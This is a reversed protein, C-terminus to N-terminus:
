DLTATPILIIKDDNTMATGRGDKNSTGLYMTDNNLHLARLRGYEGNFYSSLSLSSDNGIVAKYLSQGRLGTFYLANNHYVMDAPAWTDNDGSSLVPSRMGDRTQAGKIVPWGYNGGKEILNVEDNGTDLGSPGHEHSWLRGDADWAIGQPNRHGYSWVANNFPNDGPISGDQNIRLIKGALSNTEQARDEQGADGTTVYLKGDPGFAIRGGDHVAAAQINDIIVTKDTVVDNQLTYRLVQNFSTGARDITVAVYIYNNEAFNPHLALGMLGGESTERVNEITIRQQNQGIRVLQGSRESVLLDGGPLTVIEWPTTLEQAAIKITEPRQISVIPTGSERAGFVLSMIRERQLWGLIAVVIVSVLVILLVRRKM